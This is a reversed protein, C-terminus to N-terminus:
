HTLSEDSRCDKKTQREKARRSPHVRNANRDVSPDGGLVLGFLAKGQLRLAFPQLRVAEGSVPGDRGPVGIFTVRASVDATRRILLHHGFAVRPVRQEDDLHVSDVPVRPVKHLHHLVELPPPLIKHGGGLGEVGRGRHPAEDHVDDLPDGLEFGLLDAFAHFHPHGLLRADAGADESEMRGEAVIDHFAPEDGDLGFGLDHSLHEIQRSPRVSSSVAASRFAFPRRVFRSVAQVGILTYRM